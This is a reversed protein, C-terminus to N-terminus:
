GINWFLTSGKYNSRNELWWRFAKLDYWENCPWPPTDGDEASDKYEYGEDILQIRINAYGSQERLYQMVKDHSRSYGLHILYTGILIGQRSFGRIVGAAITGSSIPILVQNFVRDPVERATEAVSEELKLANPMLYGGETECAKKAAHYLIASRGAPLGILEAGLEQARLQPERPGPEYKFEPYYNVCRKGLIQCARAVAHGAQSHRTDLVGILEESRSAVRAYVGRTKSFPPGPKPCALDERKVWIGYQERYDELPTGERLMGGAVIKGRAQRTAVTGM